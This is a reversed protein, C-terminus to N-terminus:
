DHEGGRRGEKLRSRHKKDSIRREIAGRGPRTPRRRKPRVLAERVLDALKELADARNQAQNRTRESTVILDGDASLRAGLRKMLWRHDAENPARSDRLNWRLEVKTESRNVKQGGPGGSRAFAVRLEDGPITLQPGVRLDDM